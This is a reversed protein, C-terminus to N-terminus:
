RHQQEIIRYARVLMLYSFLIIALEIRACGRWTSHINWKSRDICNITNYSICIGSEFIARAKREGPAM